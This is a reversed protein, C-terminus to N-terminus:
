NQPLVHHPSFTEKQSFFGFDASFCLSLASEGSYLAFGESDGERSFCAVLISALGEQRTDFLIEHLLTSQQM